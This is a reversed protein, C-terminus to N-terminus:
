ISGFNLIDLPSLVWSLWVGIALHPGFPIAQRGGVDCREADFLLIAAFASAVAILIAGPLAGWGIWLTAAAVFKVDGLGLGDYGRLRRFGARFAVGALFVAAAEFIGSFPPFEHALSYEVLGGAALALNFSDPIIAFRADIACIAALVVFLYLGMGLAEPRPAASAMNALLWILGVVLSWAVLGNQRQYGRWTLADALFRNTRSVTKRLSRSM